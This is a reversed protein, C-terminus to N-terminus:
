MAACGACDASRGRGTAGADGDDAAAWSKTIRWCRTGRAIIDMSASMKRRVIPFSDLVRACAAADLGYLHFYLADLECRLTFRREADWVYPPGRM